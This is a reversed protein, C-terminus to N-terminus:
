KKLQKEKPNNYKATKKAKQLSCQANKHSSEESSNILLYPTTSMT